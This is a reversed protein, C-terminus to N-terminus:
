DELNCKEEILTDIKRLNYTNIGSRGCENCSWCQGSTGEPNTGGIGYRISKCVMNKYVRRKAYEKAWVKEQEAQKRYSEARQLEIKRKLESKKM